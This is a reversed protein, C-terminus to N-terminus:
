INIEERPFSFSPFFEVRGTVLSARAGKLHELIEETGVVGEEAVSGRTLHGKQRSLVEEEKSLQISSMREM